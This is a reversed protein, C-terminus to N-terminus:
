SFYNLLNPILKEEAVRLHQQYTSLSLGMIKALNRLDTQRPIKYYGKQIALDIAKKQLSTLEPMLRPFFVDSVKVEKIKLLKYCKFNKEVEKLFKELVEREWSAVEWTEYGSEDILVPKTFLIKPNFFKVAKEESKELLFLMNKQRELGIVKKNHSLDQVFKDIQSPEGSM